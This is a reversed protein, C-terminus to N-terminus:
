EYDMEDDCGFGFFDQEYLAYAIEYELSDDAYYSLLYECIQWLDYYTGHNSFHTYGVSNSGIEIAKKLLGFDQLYIREGNALNQRVTELAQKASQNFVVTTM